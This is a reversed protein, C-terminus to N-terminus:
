PREEFYVRRHILGSVRLEDGILVTTGCRHRGAASVLGAPEAGCGHYLRRTKEQDMREFIGQSAIAATSKAKGMAHTKRM